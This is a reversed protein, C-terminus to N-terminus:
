QFIFPERRVGTTVIDMVLRERNYITFSIIKSCTLLGNSIIAVIGYPQVVFNTKTKRTFSFFFDFIIQDFRM